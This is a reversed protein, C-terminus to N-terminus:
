YKDGYSLFSIYSFYITYTKLLMENFVQAYYNLVKIVILRLLNSFPERWQGIMYILNALM